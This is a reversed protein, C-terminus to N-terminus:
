GATALKRKQLHASGGLNESAGGESLVRRAVAAAQEVHDIAAARAAKGDGNAIARFIREMERLSIRQRDPTTITMMRLANVRLNLSECVSWSVSKQSTAFMQRYFKDTARMSMRPDRKTCATRLEKIAQGLTEIDPAAALKACEAAALGELMSRLEYIQEVEAPKITAVVPGRNPPIEILGEAELFRLVERVVTRSVGLEACLTREILREGPRFRLELIAQRVAEQALERLSKQPELLRLVRGQEGM